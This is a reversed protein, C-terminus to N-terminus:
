VGSLVRDIMQNAQQEYGGGFLNYHNLIHYLNYLVRRRQYGPELPYVRNYGERFAAPFGGFLESMALDVERDAWYVAVDYLVPEGSQSFAANGSWLDGHVLSPRPRYGAFIAPLAEILDHFRPFRAGKGCALRYQFDLRRTAFFEPWDDACQNNQRTAGIFNDRDWGFSSGMEVRHLGALREGMLSWSGSGSLDLWELVLFSQDEERGWCIPAPTRITRTEAIARLGLAETEFMDLLSARNSKLFFRRGDRKDRLLAARNICGGAVSGEPEADFARNTAEAIARNIAKWIRNM